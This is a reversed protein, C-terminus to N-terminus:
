HARCHRLVTKAAQFWRHNGMNRRQFARVRRHFGVGGTSQIKSELLRKAHDHLRYDLENYKRILDLEAASLSSEQIPDATCNRKKYTPPRKWGLQRALLVVCEDFRETVGTLLFEKDLNRMALNLTTESLSSQQDVHGAILRTQQNNIAHGATLYEEFPADVQNRDNRRLWAHYHSITRATPERLMTVYLSKGPLLRHLGFPFHGTILRYSEEHPGPHEFFRADDHRTRVVDSEEFQGALLRCLTTGGTKPIHVFILRDADPTM